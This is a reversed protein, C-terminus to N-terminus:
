QKVCTYAHLDPEFSMHSFEEISGERIIKGRELFLFRDGISTADRISHTVLIAPKQSKKLIDRLEYRMQERTRMDLASFPEDLLMLDPNIILARALAVRQQQGGSLDTVPFKALSTLNCTELWEHVRNHIIEKLLGRCTLSFGINEEVTMNPFLAYNQFVYGINREETPVNIGSDADYLIHSNLSILGGDPELLGSIMSILSTKGAGNEGFLVLIEGPDVQLSIQLGFDRLQKNVRVNLM